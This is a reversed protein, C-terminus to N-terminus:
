VTVCVKPAVAAATADVIEITKPSLTTPLGMGNSGRSNTLTSVLLDHDTNSATTDTYVSEDDEVTNKPQQKPVVDQHFPCRSTPNTSKEATNMM